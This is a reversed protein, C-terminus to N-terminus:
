EYYRDERSFVMDFSEITGTKVLHYSITIYINNRDSKVTIDDESLIIRPEYTRIANVIDHKIIDALINSDPEFMEQTLKCGYQPDGLLEYINSKLLIKLSNQISEVGSVVQTKGTMINFMNPFKITTIANM